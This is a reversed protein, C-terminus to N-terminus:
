LERRGDGALELRRVAEGANDGALVYFADGNEVRDVKVVGVAELAALRATIVDAYTPSDGHHTYEDVYRTASLPVSSHWLASILARNIPDTITDNDLRV